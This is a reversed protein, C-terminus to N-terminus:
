QKQNEPAAFKGHLKITAEAARISAWLLIASLFINNNGGFYAGSTNTAALAVSVAAYLALTVAAVRSQFQRIFVSSLAFIAADVLVPVGQWISLITQLGAVFFFGITTEEVLVLADTRSEIKSFLGKRKIETM